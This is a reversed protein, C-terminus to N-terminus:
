REVQPSTTFYNKKKSRDRADTHINKMEQNCREMLEFIKNLFFFSVPFETRNKKWSEKVKLPRNIIGGQQKRSSFFAENKKKKFKNM